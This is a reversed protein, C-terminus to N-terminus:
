LNRNFPKSKKSKTTNKLDGSNKKSQHYDPPAWPRNCNERSQFRRHYQDQSRESDDLSSFNINILLPSGDAYFGWVM